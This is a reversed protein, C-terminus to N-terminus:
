VVKNLLENIYYNREYNYRDIDKISNLVENDYLKRALENLTKEDNQIKRFKEENKITFEDDNELYCDIYIRIDKKLKEIKLEELDKPKICDEYKYETDFIEEYEEDTLLEFNEDIFKIQKMVEDYLEKNSNKLRYKEDSYSNESLRFYEKASIMKFDDVWTGIEENGGGLGYKITGDEKIDIVLIGNNNDKEYPNMKFTEVGNDGYELEEKVLDLGSVYSGITMNMQILNQLIDIDERTSKSNAIDFHQEKFNNYENGINKSIYDLLQYTRNIMYYGYNWQLHMAVLNKGNKYRIYLQSRQGM